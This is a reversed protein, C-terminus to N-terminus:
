EEEENEERLRLGPDYRAPGGQRDGVGVCLARMKEYLHTARQCGEHMAGERAERARTEDRAERAEKEQAEKAGRAEKEKAEWAEWAGREAVRAAELEEM